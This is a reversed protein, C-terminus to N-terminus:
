VSEDVDMDAWDVRHREEGEHEMKVRCEEEQMELRGRTPRGCGKDGAEGIEGDAGRLM